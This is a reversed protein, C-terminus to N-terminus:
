FLAQKTDQKIELTKSKAMPEVKPQDVKTVTTLAAKKQRFKALFDEEESESDELLNQFYKNITVPKKADPKILEPKAPESKKSDVPNM